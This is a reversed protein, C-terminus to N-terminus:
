YFGGNAKAILTEIGFKNEINEKFEINDGVDQSIHVCVIRKCKELNFKNELHYICNRLSMHTTKQRDYKYTIEKNEVLENIVQEILVNSYNCEIWIEDFKYNILSDPMNSFDTGFFITSDKDHFIFANNPCKGHEVNITYIRIDGIKFVQKHHIIHGKFACKDYIGENAYIPMYQNIYKVSNKTGIMYAHDNHAHSIVCARFNRLNLKKEYLKKIIINKDLGCELLIKTNENSVIYLNGISGSSLCDINIM